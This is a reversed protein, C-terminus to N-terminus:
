IKHDKHFNKDNNLIFNEMYSHKSQRFHQGMRLFSSSMSLLGLVLGLYAVIIVCHKVLPIKWKVLLQLM